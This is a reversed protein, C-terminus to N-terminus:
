KEKAYTVLEDIYKRKSFDSLAAYAALMGREDPSRKSEKKMKLKLKLLTMLVKDVFGLKSFNFGGRLYFFRISKQQEETFNMNRIEITTEERDPTAGCAYVIVKKGALKDLNQKILKVGNIGVIYLGGGYIVTDYNNFIEPDVHSYEVIDASLESSIWEAYSKTFGTKSRYIVLSKM